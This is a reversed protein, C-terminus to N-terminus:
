FGEVALAGLRLWDGTDTGTPLVRGAAIAEAAAAALLEDAPDTM